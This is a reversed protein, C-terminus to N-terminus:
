RSSSRGCEIELCAAELESLEFAQSLNGHPLLRLYRGGGATTFITPGGGGVGAFELRANSSWTEKGMNLIPAYRPDCSGRRFSTTALCQHFIAREGPLIDRVRDAIGRDGALGCRM